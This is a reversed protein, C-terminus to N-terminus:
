LARSHQQIFTWAQRTWQADYLAHHLHSAQAPLSAIGRDLRLQELNMHSFAWGQPWDLMTGFLQRLVIWDYEGFYAWFEPKDSGIFRILDDRIKLLPKAHLHPTLQPLVNERLWATAHGHDYEANEAYYERGDESVMGFSICQITRGDEHFETDFWYRM